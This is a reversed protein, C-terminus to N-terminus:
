PIVTGAGDVWALGTWRLPTGAPGIDLALFEYGIPIGTPRQDPGGAGTTGYGFTGTWIRLCAGAVNWGNWPATGLADIAVDGILLISTPDMDIPTTIGGGINQTKLLFATSGNRGKIGTAAQGIMTDLSVFFGGDMDIVTGTAINPNIGFHNGVMAFGGDCVIGRDPGPTGFSGGSGGLFFICGGNELYAADGGNDGDVGCYICILNADPDPNDVHLARAGSRSVFHSNVVFSESSVGIPADNFFHLATDTPDTSETVIEVGFILSGRHPMKCTIEDSVVRTAGSIGFGVPSVLSFNRRLEFVDEYDRGPMLQLIYKNDEAEDTIDALADSPLRYDGGEHDIVVVNSGRAANLNTIIQNILTALDDNGDAFRTINDQGDFHDYPIPPLPTRM